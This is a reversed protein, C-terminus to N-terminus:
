KGKGKGKGKGGCKNTQQMTHNREALQTLWHANRKYSLMFDLDLAWPKITKFNMREESEHARVGSLQAM